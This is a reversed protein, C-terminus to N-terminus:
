KCWQRRSSVIFGQWRTNKNDFYEKTTEAISAMTSLGPIAIDAGIGLLSKGVSKYQTKPNLNKLFLEDQARQIESEINKKVAILEELDTTGASNTHIYKRFDESFPDDRADEICHHYPGNPTLYNPINDIVLLEAFRTKLVPSDLSTLFRQSIYNTIFEVNHSNNLYNVISMDLLINSISPCAYLTLNNINLNHTHNDIAANWHIGVEKVLKEYKSVGENFNTIKEAYISEPTTQQRIVEIDFGDLSPLRTEEDLFKVYNLKRMNNPCLSRTAFWIEDYLLLLGFPSDLIPNPSSILDAPAKKARCKYDYFIPTSFGVYAVRM